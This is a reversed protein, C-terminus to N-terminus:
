KYLEQGKAIMKMTHGSTLKFLGPLWYWDLLSRIDSARETEAVGSQIYITGSDGRVYQLIM